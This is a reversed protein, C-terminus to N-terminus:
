PEHWLDGVTVGTQSLKLLSDRIRLRLEVSRADIGLAREPGQRVAEAVAATTAEGVRDRREYIARPRIARVVYTNWDPLVTSPTYLWARTSPGRDGLPAACGALSTTALATATAGLCQRRDLTVSDSPPSPM